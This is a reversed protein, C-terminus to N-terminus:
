DAGTAEGSTMPTKEKSALWERLVGQAEELGARAHASFLQVSARGGLKREAAALAQRGENRSLKDAKALLVHVRQRPLAWALLAEDGEGIGRRADVIVFLGKLAARARLAEILRPWTRRESEPASAYGYGPLDVIRQQASLEFFNILRTRGPTKSTRALGQRGVIANIASSKGANSRGAFAIEAGRDAPYQEPAAASLLFIANPFAAM